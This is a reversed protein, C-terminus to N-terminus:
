PSQRLEHRRVIGAHSVLRTFKCRRTITPLMEIIKSAYPDCPETRIYANESPHQQEYCGEGGIMMMM